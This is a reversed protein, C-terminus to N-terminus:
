FPPLVFVSWPSQRSRQRAALGLPGTLRLTVADARREGRRPPRLTTSLRQGGGPEVDIRQVRPSPAASPPWADRVWGRARRGTPNNLVVAVAAPEGVRTSTDGSRALAIARPSAALALDVAAGAVVLALVILVMVGDMPALLVVVVGALAVLAARGTLAM